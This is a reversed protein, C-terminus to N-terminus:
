LNEVQDAESAAAEVLAANGVLRRGDKQSLDLFIRNGDIDLEATIIVYMDARGGAALHTRLRENLRINTRQSPGPNPYHAARRRLNDTEGIYVASHEAGGLWFRYLGPDLDVADEDM